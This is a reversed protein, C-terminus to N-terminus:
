YTYNQNPQKPFPSISPLTTLLSFLFPIHHPPSNHLPHNHICLHHYSPDKTTTQLLTTSNHHYFQQPDYEKSNPPFLLWTIFKWIYYMVFAINLTFTIPNKGFTLYLPFYSSLSNSFFIKTLILYLSGNFISWLKSPNTLSSLLILNFNTSSLLSSSCKNKLTVM